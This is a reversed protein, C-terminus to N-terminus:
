FSRCRRSVLIILHLLRLASSNFIISCCLIPGLSSITTKFSVLWLCQEWMSGFLLSTYWGACCILIFNIFNHVAFCWSHWGGHSGKNKPDAVSASAGVGCSKRCSVTRYDSHPKKGVSGRSKWLSSKYLSGSVLGWGPGTVEWLLLLSLCVMSFKSLRHWLGNLAAMFALRVLLFLTRLITIFTTCHLGSRM